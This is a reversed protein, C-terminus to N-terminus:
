ALPPQRIEKPFLSIGFPVKVYYAMEPPLNHTREYYIHVAAAPGARSFWYISVWDLVIVIWRDTIV